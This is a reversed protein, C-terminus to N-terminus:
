EICPLIIRGTQMGPENFGWLESALVRFHLIINFLYFYVVDLFPRNM